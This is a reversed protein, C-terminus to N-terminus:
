MFFSSKQRKGAAFLASSSASCRCSESRKSVIARSCAHSSATARRCRAAARRPTEGSLYNNGIPSVRDAQDGESERIYGRYIIDATTAMSGVLSLGSPKSRKQARRRK